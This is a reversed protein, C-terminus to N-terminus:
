PDTKRDDIESRLESEVLDGHDFESFLHHLMSVLEIADADSDRHMSWSNDNLWEQFVSLPIRNLSVEVMKKRVDSDLIM